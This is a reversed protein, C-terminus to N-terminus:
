NGRKWKYNKITNLIYAGADYNLLRYGYVFCRGFISVDRANLSLLKRQNWLYELEKRVHEYSMRRLEVNNNMRCLYYLNMVGLCRAMLNNEHNLKQVCCKVCELWNQPLTIHLPKSLAYGFLTINSPQSQLNLLYGSNAKFSNYLYQKIGDLILKAEHRAEIHDSQIHLLNDAIHCAHFSAGDVHYQQQQWNDTNINPTTNSGQPLLFSGCAPLGKETYQHTKLMKLFEIVESEGIRHFAIKFLINSRNELTLSTFEDLFGLAKKVILDNETMGLQFLFTLVSTTAYVRDFIRDSNYTWYNGNKDFLSNLSDLTFEIVDTIQKSEYRIPILQFSSNVKMVSNSPWQLEPILLDDGFFSYQNSVEMFENNSDSENLASVELIKLKQNQELIFSHLKHNFGTGIHVGKDTSLYTLFGHIDKEDSLDGTQIASIPTGSLADGKQIPYLVFPYIYDERRKDDQNYLYSCAMGLEIMCFKSEYYEKSIIPVFLNSNNLENFITEIFNKGVKISGDESSCFVEINSSVMELFEAFKLVIERNKAAHSIFIRM